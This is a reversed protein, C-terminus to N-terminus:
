GILIAAKEALLDELPSISIISDLQKNNINFKKKLFNENNKSFPIKNLIPKIQLFLKNLSIKNGITILIFNSESKIGVLKIAENIQTTGAFRLLIDTEIKKSLLNNNKKAMQSISIIKKAHSKNLIYNSSIAQIILNPFKSRLDDLFDM